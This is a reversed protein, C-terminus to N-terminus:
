IVCNVVLVVFRYNNKENKRTHTSTATFASLLFMYRSMSNTTVRKKSRNKIHKGDYPGKVGSTPTYVYVPTNTNMMYLLSYICKNM